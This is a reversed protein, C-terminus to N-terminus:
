RQLGELCTAEPGEKICPWQLRVDTQASECEPNEQPWSAQTRLGFRKSLDVTKTNSCSLRSITAVSQGSHELPGSRMSVSEVSYLEVIWPLQFPTAGDTCSFIHNPVM